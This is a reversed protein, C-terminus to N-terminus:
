DEFFIKRLIGPALASLPNVSVDPDKQPGRVKYTAAILGEGGGTLVNGILPIKALMKNLDSVPIITGNLDYVKAWLDISGEFTLGLSAGSTQGDKLSILRVNHDPSAPAGRDTYTFAVRAKKFAVGKDNLLDLIGSLSMANLLKALLPADRMEFGSIVATGTLDRATLAPTAANVAPAADVVLTGGKVARSVGLADLAAGANGAEVHLSHGANAPQYRVVVPKGGAQADLAFQDLRAYENRKLALTVQDLARDKGTLLRAVKVQLNLPATKQAAAADSNPTDDDAFLASADLQQGQLSIDYGGSPLAAVTAAGLTSAGFRLSTLDARALRTAAADAAFDIKGALTLAPTDVQLTKISVPKKNKLDLSLKLTGPDGEGKAVGLAPVSFGAPTLDGDLQLAATGNRNETYSLKAAMSGSPKLMDPAGFATLMAAPAKLDAALTMEPKSEDTFNKQWDLTIPADGFRGSGRVRLLGDALDLDYPGGTLDYGAAVHPLRANSIAAKATVAVEHVQLTHHLPFKFAVDVDADGAVDKIDLGLKSPYELPKSDIVELATKLPGTLHVAIDIMAHRDAAHSQKLDTINITGGGVTMDDLRGSTVKIKFNDADYDAHGDVKTVKQLPPFYDVDLGTFDIKGGLREVTVSKDPAALLSVDITSKVATGTKLHGTVWAQADPALKASWYRHLEDMPMDHLTGALEVRRRMVGDDGAVPTLHARLEAKPGGFDLQLQDIMGEGRPIDYAGSAFLGHVEVPDPYLDLLNFLGADGAVKFRLQQPAFDRDLSMAAEGKLPLAIGSLLSLKDSQAAIAAPTLGAFYARALPAGEWPLDFRLRMYTQPVASPDAGFNGKFITDAVMGDDGRVLVIKAEEARWVVGLINDEYALTADEVTVRVLRGFIGGWDPTRMQAVLNAIIQRQAQAQQADVPKQLTEAWADEVAAKNDLKGGRGINLSLSGDQSRVVRLAPGYVFIERPVLQGLLMARKSLRVRVRDIVAVPTKDSRSIRLDYMDLAFPSGKQGWTLETRGINFVFGNQHAAFAKEARDTLFDVSLPGQQLRLMLALMAALGIIVVIGVLEFLIAVARPVHHRLLSKKGQAKEIFDAIFGNSDDDALAPIHGAGPCIHVQLDPKQARLEAIEEVGCLDSIEGAVLALPCTIKQLGETLDIGAALAQKAPPVLRPDFHLTYGQPTKILQNLAFHEWVADDVPGLPLNQKVFAVYQQPDQLVPLDETMYGAIRQCAAANPKHTIDVLTLSRLIDGRGILPLALAILGGMSSGVWHVAGWGQQDVLAAFIRAYVDLNYMAGDPLWSSDGRGPADLSWVEYGRAQLFRGMDDFDRKQRSLGHVAVVVGRRKGAPAFVAAGLRCPYGLGEVDCSRLDPQTKDTM